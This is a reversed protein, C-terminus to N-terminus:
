AFMNLNIFLWSNQIGVAHHFEWDWGILGIRGESAETAQNETEMRSNPSLRHHTNKLKWDLVFGFQTM